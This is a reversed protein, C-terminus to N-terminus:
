KMFGAKGDGNADIKPNLKDMLSPKSNTTTTASSGMTGNSTSTGTTGFNQGDRDSGITGNSRSTGNAGLNQGTRHSGYSNDPETVSTTGKAGAGGLSGGVAKPEGGFADSREERGNLQGGQRKFDDMTISPLQTATHHKSENQHVEHVPVITHVVSPQVTEKQIVPQINEHVHHHIHEGAVVPAASSTQQTEGVTRSNKFQAAEAALRDKIHSDDGHKINREEVGVMNHSHQEPLVEKDQIPQVSTHHHHQHVERDVATQVDEHRTRTVNENTIAPNVVEHVTTDHKGDKSLFGSVAAKAKDM